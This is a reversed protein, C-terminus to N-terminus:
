TKDQSNQYPILKATKAIYLPHGPMGSKTISLASLRGQAFNMVEIHRQLLKGHNGWAAVLISGAKLAHKIHHNNEPGVPDDATLLLKPDTSRFAFLNIMILGGCEWSKAFGICRRITPDDEHEDATSPNLGIFVAKPLGQNWTRSLSYRFTRCKSLIADKQYSESFLDNQM